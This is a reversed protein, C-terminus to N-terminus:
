NILQYSCSYTWSSGASHTMVLRWTNTVVDSITQGTLAATVITVGPFAKLRILGTSVQATNAAMTVYSGGAPDKSQLSLTLTEIGPAATVNCDVIIGRYNTNTQDALTQTATRAGSPLWVIAGSNVQPIGVQVGSVNKTNSYVGPTEEGQIVIALAPGALLSLLLGLILKKM